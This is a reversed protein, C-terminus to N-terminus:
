FGQYVFPTGTEAFSLLVLVLTLVALFLAKGWVPWQTFFTEDKHQSQKWDLLLAPILLLLVRIDLFSVGYWNNWAVTGALKQRIFWFLQKIWIFATPMRSLYHWGTVLNMRFPIWALVVLVFVGLASLVQRWKPLENLVRRPSWWTSLREVILYFGHLGGWFLFNWGIGHWVGSVLMTLMPPVVLNAVQAQRTKRKLLARSTPFFIYDRLWNSLSVHWREWFESISRSFYPLKFNNTLEIGFFGSVGRVISTYGAFDNYIVFAYALLYVVLDQGAFTEPHLFIAAPIISSLSDALVIKRIVGVVILWFNREAAQADPAKPQKFMPLITRAREVPGSLMKPFYVVYLAFDLWHAEPRLMRNHIDVLYSIMQVAIFSLGIPVLLFLGGAGSHVGLKGLLNTLAGVYFDSYKLAVLALVNFGIGIWLLARLRDKATGLSEGPIPDPTMAAGVEPKTIAPSSIGLWRGLLFNVTAVVLLIGALEWSWSIIFVLSVAFLWPIRYLQPLRWYILISVACFIVFVFSTISM